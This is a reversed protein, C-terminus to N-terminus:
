DETEVFHTQLRIQCFKVFSIRRGSNCGVSQKAGTGQLQVPGCKIYRLDVPHGSRVYWIRSAITFRQFLVAPHLSTSPLSGGYDVATGHKQLLSNIYVRPFRSQEDVTVLGACAFVMGEIEPLNEEDPCSFASRGVRENVEDESFEGLEALADRAAAKISKEVGVERCLVKYAGVIQDSM